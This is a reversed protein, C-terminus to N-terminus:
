LEFREREGEDAGGGGGGEADDMVSTVSTDGTVSDEPPDSHPADNEHVEEDQADNPSDEPPDLVIGYARALGRVAAPTVIWGRSRATRDAQKLRLRKLVGGVRSPTAWEADLDDAAALAKISEAIRTSSLTVGGNRTDHADRADCTDNPVLRLLARVVLITRDSVLFDAKERQYARMVQRIRGELGDVGHRELLRAVAVLARWPEFERGVTGTEADLEAWIREAEPLLWLAMAWLDDQLAQQDCPWGEVRSPDANGRKSDETRALPLVISRSGLVADPLGIATFGRPCFANVWRTHWAGDPGAEKLPICAGRRNGALFLERKEPSSQKPNSLTEADDFLLTAGYDALDRLAAFTGSSLVVEGLYSTMAWCTGWNTKGCGREGNPWPYGLVTFAAALWTMLSFCASLECMCAQDALSRSFDIFADYVRVLRRFVDSPDPRRGAQYAKVAPTRWGKGDRAPEALQVELGLADLGHTGGPGFVVGDDRVVFLERRREVRPPDHRVVKGNVLSDPVTTKIWLWTAAYARGGVLALPRALSSPADDLLEVIPATATPAPAPAAALARLDDVTHALLHDDVGVTAGDPGDPLYVPTVTAGKRRLHEALRDLAGRVAPKHMVDSDFAVYVRRGNWAILDFDALLTVGGFENKGKFNWVGLLAAGCLGHSALADAKKQGETLWLDVSPDKIMERCRPPVDLRASMGRPLEYKLEKDQRDVRPVDPRYSHLENAGDPSWVPLVLGPPRRQAAGFGLASLEKTGLASRYGRERIVAVSLGSERHLMDFHRQLLEPVEASFVDSTV